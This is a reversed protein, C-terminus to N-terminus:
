GVPGWWDWGDYEIYWEGEISPNHCHRLWWYYWWGESINWEPVWPGCHAEGPMTQAGASLAGAMMMAATVVAVTALLITRRM